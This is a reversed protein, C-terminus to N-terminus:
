LQHKIRQITRTSPYVRKGNHVYYSKKRIEENTIKPHEHLMTIIKERVHEPIGPKGIKVGKYKAKIIGARIRTSLDVIEYGPKRLLEYLAQLKQKDYVRVIVTKYRKQPM